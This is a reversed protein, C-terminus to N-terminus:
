LKKRNLIKKDLDILVDQYSYKPLDLPLEQVYQVQITNKVM